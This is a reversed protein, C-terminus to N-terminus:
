GRAWDEWALGKIRSFERVNATVLTLQLRLSQGAILVDYAGIPTGAAELDARVRGAVKGDESEFALLGMPGALFTELLRANAEPRASKAVGYWLEFAVVSPVLVTAGAEIAKEFRERVSRKGHILAICANTDLLYNV